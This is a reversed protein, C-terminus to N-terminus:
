SSLLIMCIDVRSESILNKKGFWITHMSPILYHVMFGLSFLLMLRTGYSEEQLHVCVKNTCQLRISQQLQLTPFFDWKNFIM